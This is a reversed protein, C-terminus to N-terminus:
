TAPLDWAPDWALASGQPASAVLRRARDRALRRVAAKSTPRVGSPPRPAACASKPRPKPVTRKGREISGTITTHTIQAM